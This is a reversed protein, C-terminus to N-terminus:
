HRNACIRWTRTRCVCRVLWHPAVIADALPKKNIRDIKGIEMRQVVAVYTVGKPGVIKMEVAKDGWSNKGKGEVAVTVAKSFPVLKLQGVKYDGSAFILKTDNGKIKLDIRAKSQHLRFADFWYKRISSKISEAVM